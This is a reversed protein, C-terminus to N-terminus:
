GLNSTIIKEGCLCLTKASFRLAKTKRQAPEANRQTEATFDTMLKM